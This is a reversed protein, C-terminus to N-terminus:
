NRSENPKWCLICEGEVFLTRGPRYVQNYQVYSIINNQSVGNMVFIRKKYVGITTYIKDM